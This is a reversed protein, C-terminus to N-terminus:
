RALLMAMDAVRHFAEPDAEVAHRVVPPPEMDGEAIGQKAYLITDHKLETYSGFGTQHGKAAWGNNRM